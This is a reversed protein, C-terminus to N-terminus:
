IRGIISNPDEFLNAPYSRERMAPDLGAPDKHQDPGIFLPTNDEPQVPDTWNDDHPRRNFENRMIFALGLVAVAAVAILAPGIKVFFGARSGAVAAGAAIDLSAM